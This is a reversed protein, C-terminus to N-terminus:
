LVIVVRHNPPIFLLTIKICQKFFFMVGKNLVHLNNIQQETDGSVEGTYCVNNFPCFGYTASM